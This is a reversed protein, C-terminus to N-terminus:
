KFFFNFSVAPLIAEKERRGGHSVKGLSSKGFLERM